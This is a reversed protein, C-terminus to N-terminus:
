DIKTKEKILRKEELRRSKRVKKDLHDKEPDKISTYESNKRKRGDGQERVTGEQKDVMSKWKKICKAKQRQKEVKSLRKEPPPWKDAVRFDPKTDSTCGETETPECKDAVRTNDNLSLTAKHCSVKESQVRIKDHKEEQMVATSDLRIASATEQLRPKSIDLQTKLEESQITTKEVESDRDRSSPLAGAKDKGSSRGSNKSTENTETSLPVYFHNRELKENAQKDVRSKWEKVCNGQKVQKRVKALRKGKSRLSKKTEKKPRARLSDHKTDSTCGETETPECIDAVRTDDNQPM